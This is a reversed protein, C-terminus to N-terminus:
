IIDDMPKMKYKIEEPNLHNYIRTQRINKHGAFEQAAVLDKTKSYYLSIFTHRGVHWHLNAKIDLKAAIDKLIRNAYQEEFKNFIQDRLSHDCADAYLQRAMKNLPVKLIDNAKRTKHPLFVLIDDLTMKFLDAIKLLHELKINIDGSEYRGYTAEKVNLEDAIYRQTWNKALRLRKVNIMIDIINM